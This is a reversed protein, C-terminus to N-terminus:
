AETAIMAVGTGLIWLFLTGPIATIVQGELSFFGETVIFSAIIAVHAVAALAGLLATWRPLHRGRFVLASYAGLAVATPAGSMALLGFSLDYLSRVDAVKADRYVLIFFSTFGTMLLTVLGVLGLAFCATGLEDGGNTQRLRLWVGAGFVLWLAVATTSLVMTALLAERNAQIFSAIEASTSATGPFEFIRGVVGGAAGLAVGVIGAVGALKTSGREIGNM